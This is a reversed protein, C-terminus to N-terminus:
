CGAGGRCLAGSHEPGLSGWSDPRPAGKSHPAPAPLELTILFAVPSALTEEKDETPQHEDGPFPGHEKAWGAGPGAGQERAEGGRSGRSSTQGRAPGCIAGGETGRAIAPAERSM